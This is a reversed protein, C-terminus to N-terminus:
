NKSWLLLMIIGSNWGWGRLLAWLIQQSLNSHLHISDGDSKLVIAFHNLFYWPWKSKPASLVWLSKRLYEVLTKLKKALGSIWVVFNPDERPSCPAGTVKLACVSCPIIHRASLSDTYSLVGNCASHHLECKCTSTKVGLVWAIVTQIQLCFKLSTVSHFHCYFQFQLHGVLEIHSNDERSCPNHVCWSVISIYM